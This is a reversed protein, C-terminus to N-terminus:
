FHSHRRGAPHRSADLKDAAWIIIALMSSRGKTRTKEESSNNPKTFLKMHTRVAILLEECEPSSFGNEKLRKVSLTSHAGNKYEPDSSHHSKIMRGQIIFHKAKCLDHCIAAIVMDDADM